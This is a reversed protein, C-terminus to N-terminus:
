ESTSLEFGKKLLPDFIENFSGLTLTHLESNMVKPFDLHYINHIIDISGLTYKQLMLFSNFLM